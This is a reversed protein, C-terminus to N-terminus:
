FWAPMSLFGPRISGPQQWTPPGALVQCVIHGGLRRQQINPARGTSQTTRTGQLFSGQIGERVM